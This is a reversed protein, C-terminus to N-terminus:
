LKFWESINLSDYLFLLAQLIWVGIEWGAQVNRRFFGNLRTEEVFYDRNKFVVPSFTKKKKQRFTWTPQSIPTHIKCAKNNKYSERLM